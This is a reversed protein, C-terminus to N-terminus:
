NMIRLRATGQVTMRQSSTLQLRKIFLRATGTLITLSGPAYLIAGSLGDVVTKLCDFSGKIQHIANYIRELQRYEPNDRTDEPTQPLTLNLECTM